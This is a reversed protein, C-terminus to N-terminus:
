PKLGARDLILSWATDALDEAPTLADLVVCRDPEQKAIDLFGARVREHFALDRAEFTDPKTASDRANRRELLATPAADLILTLAPGKDDVAIHELADITRTPVGGGVGQYVRTSDAFRDCIVLEGRELAPGIRKEVHDARAANMLLAESISSLADAAPALLVIDRIQEAAKTGGPERTLHVPINSADARAKLNAALTSKGVGEGGELTVFLGREPM